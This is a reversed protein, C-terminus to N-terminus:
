NCREKLVKHDYSIEIGSYILPTILNIAFFIYGALHSIASFLLIGIVNIIFAYAFLFTIYAFKDFRKKEWHAILKARSLTSAMLLPIACVLQLTLLVNKQLLDPNRTIIFTFITFSVALLTFNISLRSHTKEKNIEFDSAGKM